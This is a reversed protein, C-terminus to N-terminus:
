WYGRIRPSIPLSCKTCFTSDSAKTAIRGTRERPRLSLTSSTLRVQQKITPLMHLTTSFGAATIGIMDLNSRKQSPLLQGVGLWPVHRLSSQLSKCLDASNASDFITISDLASARMLCVNSSLDESLSSEMEVSLRVLAVVQRKHLGTSFFYSPIHSSSMASSKSMLYM